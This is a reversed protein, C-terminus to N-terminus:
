KADTKNKDQQRDRNRTGFKWHSPGAWNGANANASFYSYESDKGLNHFALFQTEIAQADNDADNKKWGSAQEDTVSSNEDQNDLYDFDDNGNGYDYDIDDFADDDNDYRTDPTLGLSNRKVTEADRSASNEANLFSDYQDGWRELLDLSRCTQISRIEGPLYSRLDEVIEIQDETAIRTNNSLNTEKESVDIEENQVNCPFAVEQSTDFILYPGDHVFLHNLLMGKAGGEDFTKSM